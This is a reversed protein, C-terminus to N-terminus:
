SELEVEENERTTKYFYGLHHMLPRAALSPISDQYPEAYDRNDLRGQDIQECVANLLDEQIPYEIFNTIERLTQEPTSLLDEYCVELFHDPPIIEKNELVFLVYKEWLQYCYDFDLTIPRYDLRIIRKWIKKRQKHSRRHTSIAVDIGNRLVHLFRAQPFVRLWIPFTITTRPDKWGWYVTEGQSLSDWLQPGFFDSIGPKRTYFRTEPFLAERARKAQKQIFEESRMAEVLSDIESWNSGVSDYIQRNIKQFHVAEADRSLHSGMHIGLDKLLRATLSTGSRHMGMVILPQMQRIYEELSRLRIMM